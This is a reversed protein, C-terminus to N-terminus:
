THVCPVAGTTKVIENSAMDQVTNQDLQIFSSTRSTALSTRIKLADLDLKSFSVTLTLDNVQAVSSNVLRYESGPLSSANQVTIGSINLSSALVVESFSLVMVGADVDM